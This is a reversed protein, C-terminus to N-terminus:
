FEVELFWFCHLSWIKSSYLRELIVKM